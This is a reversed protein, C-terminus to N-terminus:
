WRASAADLAAYTEGISRIIFARERRVGDDAYSFRCRAVEAGVHYVVIEYHDGGEQNEWDVTFVNGYHISGSM